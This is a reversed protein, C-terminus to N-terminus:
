SIIERRSLAHRANRRRLLARVRRDFLRDIITALIVCGIGVLSWGIPNAAGDGPKGLLAQSVDLVPVHIAYLPYSLGGLWSALGGAKEPVYTNLSLIIVTPFIFFVTLLDLITNPQLPLVFITILFGIPLWIQTRPLGERRVTRYILLGLSYSFAVRFFGAFFFVPLGRGIAWGIHETHSGLAACAFLVASLCTLAGLIRNTLKPLALAHAINAAIEFFLSWAPGNLPFVSTNAFFVPILFFNLIMWVGPPRVSYGSLVACAGIVFGIFMTPYLRVLRAKIFSGTSLNERLRREYALGIVFGSMMFFLDVALYGRPIASWPTFNQLHFILVAIAALGRIIDLVQFHDRDAVLEGM